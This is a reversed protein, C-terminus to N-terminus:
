KEVSVSRIRAASANVVGIKVVVAGAELRRVGLTAKRYEDSAPLTVSKYRGGDAALALELRGASRYEVSVRYDGTEPVNVTYDFSDGRKIRSLAGGEIAPRCAPRRDYDTASITAPVKPVVVPDGRM